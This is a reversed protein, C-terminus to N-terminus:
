GTEKTVEIKYVYKVWESGYYGEAVLRLPYGHKRPLTKGNVAYAPFVTNSLADAIPYREVKEYDGEPGSFSIHTAGNTAGARDLLAKMSIGKWRGHNVFIGPCILLVNREVSPLSLIQSYTLQLPQSIYGSVELRWKDIDTTHDSIGMTRFKELPTIDLNRTDLRSPNKHILEERSANKPLVIKEANAYAHRIFSSFPYWFAGLGAFLRVSTKLFQRRKEM